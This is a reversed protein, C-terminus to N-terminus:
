LITSAGGPHGAEGSRSLPAGPPNLGREGVPGSDPQRSETKLSVHYSILNDLEVPDDPLEGNSKRIANVVRCRAIVHYMKRKRKEGSEQTYGIAREFREKGLTEYTKGITRRKELLKRDEVKHGLGKAISKLPRGDPTGHGTMYMAVVHEWDNLNELDPFSQQRDDMYQPRDSVGISALSSGRRLVPQTAESMPYEAPAAVGSRRVGSREMIDESPTSSKSTRFEHSVHSRMDATTVRPYVPTVVSAALPRLPSLRTPDGYPQLRENRPYVLPSHARRKTPPESVDGDAMGCLTHDRSYM